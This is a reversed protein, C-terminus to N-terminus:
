FLPIENMVGQIILDIEQDTKNIIIALIKYLSFPINSCLVEEVYEQWQRSGLEIIIGILVIISRLEKFEEPTLGKFLNM